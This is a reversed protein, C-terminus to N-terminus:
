PKLLEEGTSPRLFCRTAVPSHIGLDTPKWLRRPKELCGSFPFIRIELPQALTHRVFGAAHIRKRQPLRV